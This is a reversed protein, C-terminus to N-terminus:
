WLDSWHIRIELPHQPSSKVDSIQVNHELPAKADHEWLRLHIWAVNAINQCFKALSPLHRLFDEVREINKQRLDSLAFQKSEVCCTCKVYIFRLSVWLGQFPSEIDAALDASKSASPENQSNM